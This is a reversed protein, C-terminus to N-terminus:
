PSPRTDTREPPRLELIAVDRSPNSGPSTFYHYRLEPRNGWGTDAVKLPHRILQSGTRRARDMWHRILPEYGDLPQWAPRIVLFRAADRDFLYDPLKDWGPRSRGAPKLLGACRRNTDFMIAMEEFPTYIIDDPNSNKLLFRAIAEDTGAYPERLEQVYGAWESKLMAQRVAGPGTAFDGDLATAGISSPLLGCAISPLLNTVGAAIAAVNGVVDNRLYVERLAAAVVIAGLPMMHVSYRPGAWLMVPVVTIVPLALCAVLGYAGGVRLRGRVAAIALGIAVIWPCVFQNMVFLQKVVSKGTPDRHYGVATLTGASKHLGLALFWPMTLAATMLAAAGLRLWVALTRRWALAHVAIGLGVCLSTMYNSHFLFVMAAALAILGRRRPLEVYGWVAVLAGVSLMSYYRAQRMMLLYQVTTLLLVAAICAAWRDRVLRRAVVYTLGISACGLLAFPLRAGLPTPGAVAM